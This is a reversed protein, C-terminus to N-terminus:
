TVSSFRIIPFFLKCGASGDMLWHFTAKLRGGRATQITTNLWAPGNIELATKDGVVEPFPKPLGDYFNQLSIPALFVQVSSTRVQEGGAPDSPPFHGNGRKLYDLVGEDIATKACAAKADCHSSYTTDSSYVRFAHMSLM